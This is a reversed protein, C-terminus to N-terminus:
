PSILDTALLPKIDTWRLIVPRPTCAYCGGDYSDFGITLGDQTFFWRDPSVAINMMGKDRLEPGKTPVNKWGQVLLANWFLDQLPKKWHDTAGFIDAAL